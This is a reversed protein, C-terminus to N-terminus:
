YKQDKCTFAEPNPSSFIYKSLATQKQYINNRKSKQQAQIQMKTDM